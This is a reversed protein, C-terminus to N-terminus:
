EVVACAFYVNDAARYGDNRGQLYFREIDAPNLNEKLCFGLRALDEALTSPIFGTIMPEGINQLFELTKQMRLSSKDPIFMENDFYDFVVTSGTAAVEAISQLTAFVDYKTLYYTVGLWSFFSKIKPDYSSSRKLATALSEKTFDIPIFHLKKPIEWGLEALRHLKFEQTAPHDVEFVELKEMLEPRRFAFTDLGAGIILYQKVGERVAKELTEEAYRARCFLQATWKQENTSKNSVPMSSTTTTTQDSCLETHETGYLQKDWCTLYQEIQKRKDEPILCYALFDDFIKPTDHMSHYARMYAVLMATFSAQNEKM